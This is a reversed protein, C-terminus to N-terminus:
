WKRSWPDDGLMAPLFSLFQRVQLGVAEVSIGALRVVCGEPPSDTLGGGIASATMLLSSRREIALASLVRVIAAAEHVFPGGALIVTALVDFRGLRDPLAGDVARLALADHIVPRGAIRVSTRTAYVGFAWREGAARRGSTMWDVLVLGAGPALDVHQEQRYHSGAFCVIPDPAIVCLATALISPARSWM